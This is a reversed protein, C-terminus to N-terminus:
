HLARLGMMGVVVFALGIVLEVLARERRVLWVAVLAVLVVAGLQLAVARDTTPLLFDRM